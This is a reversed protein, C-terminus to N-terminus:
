LDHKKDCLKILSVIITLIGTGIFMVFLWKNMSIAIDTLIMLLFLIVILLISIKPIKKKM